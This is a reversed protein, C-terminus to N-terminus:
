FKSEEILFTDFEKSGITVRLESNYNNKKGYKTDWNYCALVILDGDDFRWYIDSVKSEKSIDSNHSYTFLEDQTAEKFVEDFELSTTEIEKMCEEYNKEVIGNIDLIKFSQDDTRYSIQVETYIQFKDSRMSSTTYKKNKYFNRKSDEIERLSFYDLASDYLSMGEIEFDRIDDAKTWSQFSFIFFLVTIFIRM